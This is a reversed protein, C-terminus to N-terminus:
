HSVNVNKWVGILTFFPNADVGAGAVVQDTSVQAVAKGPPHPRVTVDTLVLPGKIVSM